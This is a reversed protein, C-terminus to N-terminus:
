ISPSVSTIIKGCAYRLTTAINHDARNRTVCDHWQDAGPRHSSRNSQFPKPGGRSGSPGIFWTLLHENSFPNSPHLHHHLGVEVITVNGRLAAKCLPTMGFADPRDVVAGGESLLIRIEAVFGRDVARLLATEGVLSVPANAEGNHQIFVRIFEQRDIAWRAQGGPRWVVGAQTARIYRAGLASYVYPANSQRHEPLVHEQPHQQREQETPDRRQLNAGFQVLETAVRFNGIACAMLLPSMAMSGWPTDLPVGLDMLCLCIQRLYERRPCLTLYHMATNLRADTARPDLLRDVDAEHRPTLLPGRNLERYRKALRQVVKLCGNAVASQLATVRPGGDCALLPAGRDILLLAVEENKSNPHM